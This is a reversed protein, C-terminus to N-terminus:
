VAFPEAAAGLGFHEDFAPALEIVLAPGLASM